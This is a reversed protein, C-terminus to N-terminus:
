GRQRTGPLGLTAVVAMNTACAMLFVMISSLSLTAHHYTDLVAAVLCLPLLIAAFARSWRSASWLGLALLLHLVALVLMALALGPQPVRGAAFGMLVIAGSLMLGLLGVLTTLLALFSHSLPREAM